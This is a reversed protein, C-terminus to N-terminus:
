VHINYLAELLGHMRVQADDVHSEPQTWSTRSIMTKNNNLTFTLHEVPNPCSNEGEENDEIDAYRGDDQEADHIRCYVRHRGLIAM